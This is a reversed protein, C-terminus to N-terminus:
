VTQLSLTKTTLISEELTKAAEETVLLIDWMANFRGALVQAAINLAMLADEMVEMNAAIFKRLNVDATLLSITRTAVSLPILSQM